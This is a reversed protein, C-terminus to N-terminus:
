GRRWLVKRCAEDMEFRARHTPSRHFASRKVGDGMVTRIAHTYSDHGDTTVPAPTVGTVARSSRYFAKAVSRACGCTRWREPGTSRGFCCWHGRVKVYTEDVDWSRGIRGVRRRRLHDILAPTLKAEWVRVTEQSFEVGRILFMETLDRPSLKYRLRWFVVNGCDVV